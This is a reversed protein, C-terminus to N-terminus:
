FTPFSIDKLQSLSPGQSSRILPLSDTKMGQKVSKIGLYKVPETNRSLLYKSSRIERKEFRDRSDVSCRPAVSKRTSAPSNESAKLKSYCSDCVRYPKGPTPALAARLANKSSCAHCHVLGCNYCNHRKQTFGFAQRCGLCLSQDASSVWKHVYISATFSSGCSISKVHRDKLAEVLTPTKRDEIDGHGLRGNAGKGWTFVESKSTLIAVHFAGCAVEDISETVLKLM